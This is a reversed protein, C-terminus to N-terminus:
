SLTRNIINNILQIKNSDEVINSIITNNQIATYDVNIVNSSDNFVRFLRSNIKETHLSVDTAINNISPTCIFVPDIINNNTILIDIQSNPDITRVGREFIEEYEYKKNIQSVLVNNSSSGFNLSFTNRYLNNSDTNILKNSSSFGLNYQNQDSVLSFPNELGNITSDFIIEPSGFGIDKYRNNITTM